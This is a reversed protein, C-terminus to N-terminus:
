TLARSTLEALLEPGRGALRRAGLRVGFSWCGAGWFMGLVAVPLAWWREPGILVPLLIPAALVAVAALGVFAYIATICGKGTMGQRWSFPNDNDAYPVPAVSSVVAAVGLGALAITVALALAVPVLGWEGAWTAIVLVGLMPPIVLHPVWAATRAFLQHRDPGGAVVELWLSASDFGIVNFSGGISLLAAWLGFFVVTPDATADLGTAQIFAFGVGMLTGLLFQVRKGPSRTTIRYEKALTARRPNAVRGLPPWSDDSRAGITREPATLLRKTVAAWAWLAVVAVVAGALVWAAGEAVRGESAAVVGRPAWGSPMWAFVDLVADGTDTDGQELLPGISQSAFWLTVGAAGSVLVALDRGKRSRQTRVLAAAVLRALGLGVGFMVPVAAVVVVVGAVSGPAYGIPVGCLAVLVALSAPGTAASGAIVALLQRTRLPLLALRTPDVTEDAGGGVLPVFIWGLVLLTMAVLLVARRAPDDFLRAGALMAFGGLGALGTVALTLVFLVVGGKRLRNRTLRWRLAGGLWAARRSSLVSPRVDDADTVDLEPQASSM